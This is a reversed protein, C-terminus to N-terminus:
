DSILDPFSYVYDAHRTTPSAAHGFKFKRWRTVLGRWRSQISAMKQPALRPRPKFCQFYTSYSLGRPTPMTLPRAHERRPMFRIAGSIAIYFVISGRRYCRTGDQYRHARMIFEASGGAERAPRLRWRSSISARWRSIPMMIFLLRPPLMSTPLILAAVRIIAYYTAHWIYPLMLGLVRLEDELRGPAYANNAYIFHPSLTTVSPSALQRHAGSFTAHM